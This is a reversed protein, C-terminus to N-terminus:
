RTSPTPAPSSATRRTEMATREIDSVGRLRERFAELDKEYPTGRTLEDALLHEPALLFFTVGWLTDPRTTFIPM